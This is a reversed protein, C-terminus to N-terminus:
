NVLALVVGKMAGNLGLEERTQPVVADLEVGEIRDRPTGQSATLRMLSDPIPAIPNLLVKSRHLQQIRCTLLIPQREPLTPQPPQRM